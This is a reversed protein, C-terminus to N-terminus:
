TWIDSKQRRTREAVTVAMQAAELRLPSSQPAWRLWTDCIQAVERPALDAVESARSALFRLMSPWYPWYPIRGQTAALTALEENFSAALTVALPNPTTGIYIFRTLM